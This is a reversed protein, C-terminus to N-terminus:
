TTARGPLLVRRQFHHLFDESRAADRQVFLFMVGRPSLRAPYQWPIVISCGWHPRFVDPMTPAGVELPISAWTSGTVLKVEHGGPLTVVTKVRTALLVLGRSGIPAYGLVAVGRTIQAAFCMVTGHSLWGVRHSGTLPLLVFAAACM